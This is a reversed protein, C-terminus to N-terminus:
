EADTEGAKARKSQCDYAIPTAIFISSYTGIIVGLILAFVFGRITEGGFIFISLLTVLTTGSTNITRSLTACIANDINTKMDRKPYLGIYERIRDFIVVTDNISYGIITLIAAIFAQNVEMTFPMVSYLMSFLGIVLFTNHALAVTAGLGWQWRRFRIIIYAGIALLSVLVAIISSKTMEGSISSGVQQSSQIGYTYEQTSRFQEFTIGGDEAVEVPEVVLTADAVLTPEATEDADAVVETTDDAVEPTTVVAVEAPAAEVVNAKFYGKTANYLIEHIIYDANINMLAVANEADADSMGQAILAEKEMNVREAIMEQTPEFQTKIRITNADESGIRMIECSRSAADGYQEFQEEISTRVADEDFSQDVAIVYQRGGTFDIGFNLKLTCLSIISAIILVGSVTYSVFRKSIFSVKVNKLFNETFKTSFDLTGHREAWMELLLRTVFISCFLSTLIGLVLTIAFGKVPGDGLVYLVVGTIITTLNGDIIASYANKFGDKIALMLGKGARLEEKVREFIIVNADVAMGMTLVIGAIGPLTLTSKTAVLVGMLLLVNFVLAINAMMGATKYFFFMYILVLCFALVFSILGANISEAGLTPGVVEQSVVTAPAPVSGSQLINALDNSEKATFNGTISSRGGEIRDNVNPASYVVDDMVIAIPKGINAGTLNAWEASANEDMTMSVEYGGWQGTTSEARVIGSGDMAPYLGNRGQLAYMTYTGGRTGDMSNKNSWALKVSGGTIENLAARVEPRELYANVDAMREKNAAAVFLGNVPSTQTEGNQDKYEYTTSLLGALTADGYLFDQINQSMNADVVEWFELTASSALLKTASEPDDVGPLEVMVRNTGGIRQITPQIVGLLDIREHLVRDLNDVSTAVYDNLDSAIDDIDSTGYIAELDEESMNALYIDIVNESDEGESTRTKADEAEQANAKYIADEMRGMLEANAKVEENSTAHARIADGAQIELVANMGGKLDLGLSLELGKCEGYTFGLYVDEDWIQDLYTKEYEDLKDAKQSESLDSLAAVQEEAYEKADSEVIRTVFTFSLQWISALGLILVLWKIIGKIQM